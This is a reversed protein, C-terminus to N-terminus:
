KAFEIMQNSFSAILDVYKEVQDGPAFQEFIFEAAAQGSIKLSCPDSLSEIIGDALARTSHNRVLRGYRQSDVLARSADNEQAVPALGAAMARVLGDGSDLDAALHVYLDAAKFVDSLDDFFGPLMISYALDRDVIMRWISATRRGEGILWLKAGPFKRLVSPWAQILNEFGEISDMPSACVVLPQEPDVRMIHHAKSLALRIQHKDMWFQSSSERIGRPVVQIPPMDDFQSLQDSISQSEAVIADASLCTEIHKRHIKNAVGVLNEDVRLIVPTSEDATRAVAAAEEGMGSVIIGDYSSTEFHRTLARGYRFSTWPGSVPRSFRVVPIQQFMVQRSWDRERKFTGVTVCHGADVLNLVLDHIALETLGSHPWFNRTVVLLDQPIM